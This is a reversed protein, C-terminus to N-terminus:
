EKWPYEMSVGDMYVTVGILKGRKNRVHDKYHILGGGHDILERCITPHRECADLLAHLYVKNESRSGGGYLKMDIVRRLGQVANRYFWTKYSDETFSLIGM